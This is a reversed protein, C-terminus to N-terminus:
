STTNLSPLGGTCVMKSGPSFIGTHKHTHKHTHTHTHIGTGKEKWVMKEKVGVKRKKKGREYSDRCLDFWIWSEM